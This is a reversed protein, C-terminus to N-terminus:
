KVLHVWDKFVKYAKSEDLVDFRVDAVYYYVGSALENGDLDRGDWDIFVSRTKESNYQFVEKGWRNYIKLSISQVFRPCRNAGNYPCTGDGSAEYRSTFLDNCGDNNPTFVNPLEFYPCSDNCLIGSRPGENGLADVASVQYCRVPSPLAEDAFVNEELTKLLSYLTDKGSGVYLNYAIIDVRCGPGSDVVWSLRNTFQSQFCTSNSLYEDCNLAEVAVIPACPLLDNIPYTSVIQSANEQVPIEPNGYTGVTVVKYTYIKDEEVNTDTYNFGDDIVNVSDVLTLADDTTMGTARYILHYPRNQVVNSWPVSDRWQLEIQGIGPTASLRVSSAVASTDVPIFKDSFEPKSYVVIRYNYVSDKTNVAEDWHTTDRTSGIKMIGTEGIYDMARFIEYEYPEPFQDKNIDLPSTWRIGITGAEATKDITVHTIVPADRKVPGICFEASVKSKTDAILAVLRYCYIAGPSLGSGFNTDTFSTATAPLEAILQYGSNRPIGISCNGPNFQFDGVKRWVQIESANECTFTDWTIVGYQNVVDLVTTSIVPPPAVVRINWTNFTVLRPGELPKDTIKFVVQYPQQRVHLCSTTWKIRLEASPDPSQFVVPYPEYMAAGAVGDLQLIESFVEIKVSDNEFDTGKILQTISTGAVVCIDAPVQLEPRTNACEEIIIQMDRVTTSLKVYVGEANKRWEIVKFAIAYEGTAGPADWTILGSLSDIHFVPPGTGAENATSYNTYFKPDNPDDYQAFSTPSNSPITLSYSLSDGDTDFAAPNHFFVTQSCGRDLPVVQLVPYHNCGFSDDVNIEVSTVYPVDHSNAINLINSSRDREFYTILYIGPQPFTHNFTFSGVRVNTGLDPRLETVVVPLTVSTGDSFIIQGESSFNTPSLSNLYAVITIKFTMTGCIREVLIDAARLHTALTPAPRLFLLGALVLTALAFPKKVGSLYLNKL